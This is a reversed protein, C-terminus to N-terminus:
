GKVRLYHKDKDSLHTKQRQSVSIRMHGLEQSSTIRSMNLCRPTSSGRPARPSPTSGPVLTQKEGM